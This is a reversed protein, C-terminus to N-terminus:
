KMNQITSILRVRRMLVVSLVFVLATMIIDKQMLVLKTPTEQQMSQAVGISSMTIGLILGGEIWIGNGLRM